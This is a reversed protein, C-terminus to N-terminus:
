YWTRMADLIIDIASVDVEKKDAAKTCSKNNPVWLQIDKKKIQM